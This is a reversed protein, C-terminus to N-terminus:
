KNAQSERGYFGRFVVGAGVGLFATPHAFAERFIKSAPGAITHEENKMSNPVSV